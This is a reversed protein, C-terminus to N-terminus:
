RTGHGMSDLLDNLDGAGNANARDPTTRCGERDGWEKLPTTPPDTPTTTRSPQRSPQPGTNAPTERKPTLTRSPQTFGERSGSVVGERRAPRYTTPQDARSGPIAVGHGDKVLRDLRRRVKEIQAKTPDSYIVAAVNKATTGGTTAAQLLSWEDLRDRRTTRGQDHDHHLDLPGIDEAPQKLHTLEVLPDGASGWVCLISGANSTIWTSGYVDALSAPKKNDGTAKRQHHVVAVQVGSAIVASIARAYAGGGDGTELTALVDKLSDIYLDGVDEFESAVWEALTNPAAKALDFPPPGEWVALRDALAPADADTVMRRMSRAIQRPRDAAIYLARRPTPEVPFGILGGPLIGIRSFMLQQAITSKGVGQPGVLLLPEDESWLVDGGSGWLAPVVTPASLIFDAGNLHQTRRAIM